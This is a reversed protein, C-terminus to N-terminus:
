LHSSGMTLWGTPHGLPHLAQVHRVTQDEPSYQRKSTHRKSAVTSTQTNEIRSQIDNETAAPERQITSQRHCRQDDEANQEHIRIWNEESMAGLEFAGQRQVVGSTAGTQQWDMNDLTDVFCLNPFELYDGTRERYTYEINLNAIYYPLIAVENAHMENRYKHEM